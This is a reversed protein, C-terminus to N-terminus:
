LNKTIEEICKKNDPICGPISCSSGRYQYMSAWTESCMVPQYKGDGDIAWKIPGSPKSINLIKFVTQKKHLGDPGGFSVSSIVEANGDIVMKWLVRSELEPAVAWDAFAKAPFFIILVIVTLKMSQKGAAVQLAAM